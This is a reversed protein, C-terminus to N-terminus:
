TRCTPLRRKAIKKHVREDILSCHIYTYKVLINRFTANLHRLIFTIFFICYLKNANVTFCALLARKEM